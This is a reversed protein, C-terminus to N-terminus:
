MVRREANLSAHKDENHQRLKGKRGFGVGCQECWFKRNKAHENSSVNGSQSKGGGLYEVKGSQSEDGGSYEMKVTQPNEGNQPKEGNQSNRVSQPNEGNQSKLGNQPNEGGQFKQGNQPNEGNQLKQGNQIGDCVKKIEAMGKKMEVM